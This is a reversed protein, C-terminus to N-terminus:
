KDAISAGTADGGGSGVGAGIVSVYRAPEVIAMRAPIAIATNRSSRLFYCLCFFYFRIKGVKKRPPYYDVRIVNISILLPSFPHKPSYQVKCTTTDTQEHSEKEGPM